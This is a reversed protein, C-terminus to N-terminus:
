TSIFKSSSYSWPAPRKLFKQTPEIDGPPLAAVKKCM